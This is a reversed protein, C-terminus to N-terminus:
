FTQDSVTSSVQLQLLQLNEMSFINVREIVDGDFRALTKAEHMWKRADKLPVATALRANDTLCYNDVGGGHHKSFYNITLWIHTGCDTLLRIKVKKM